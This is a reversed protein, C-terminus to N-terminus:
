LQSYIKYQIEKPLYIKHKKLHKYYSLILDRNILAQERESVYFSDNLLLVCDLMFDFLVIGFENFEKRYNSNMGSRNTSWVDIALPLKRVFYHYGGNNDFAPEVKAMYDYPMDLCYCATCAILLPYKKFFNHPTTKILGWIFLVANLYFYMDQGNSYLRLSSAKKQIEALKDKNDNYWKTCKDNNCLLVIDNLTNYGDIGNWRNNQDQYLKEIIVGVSMFPRPTDTNKKYHNFLIKRIKYYEKEALEYHFKNSPVSELLSNCIRSVSADIHERSSIRALEENQYLPLTELGQPLDQPWIFDRMIVPIINKKKEIAYSIENYVWDDPNLCRDLAHPSLIIIFDTCTEIVQYLQEDFVGSKLSEVDFFVKYGKETLKDCLIKGFFEGGDRRYSIFIQYDGMKKGEVVIWFYM